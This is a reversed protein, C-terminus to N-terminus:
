CPPVQASDATAGIAGIVDALRRADISLPLHVIVRNPLEVHITGPAVDRVTVAVFTPRDGALGGAGRRVVDVATGSTGAPQGANFRKRWRYFSATSVDDQACVEAISLGSNEQWRIRERWVQERDFRDGSAMM